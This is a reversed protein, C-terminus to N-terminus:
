TSPKHYFTTNPMEAAVQHCADIHLWMELNEPNNPDVRAFGFKEYFEVVSENMPDVYLGILGITGAVSVTRTIADILLLEGFGRKQCTQDVALRGLKVGALPHPYGKYARLPPPTIITYHNISHYGIVTSPAGPLCAVYVTLLRTETAQRAQTKIFTNLSTVGCDFNDRNHNKHIVEINLSM